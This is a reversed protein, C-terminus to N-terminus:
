SKGTGAKWFVRVKGEGQSRGFADARTEGKGGCSGRVVLRSSVRTVGHRRSVGEVECLFRQMALRGMEGLDTRVSTLPVRFLDTNALCDGYGVLAVDAPIRLGLFEAARITSAATYDTEALVASPRDPRRLLETLTELERPRVYGEPVELGHATMAARFGKLRDVVHAVAPKDWGVYAIRRHGLAILHETATRMGAKDDGVIAPCAVDPLYSDVFVLPIGQAVLRRYNERNATVHRPVLILGDVRRELLVEIEHAEDEIGREVQSILLHYGHRKAEREIGFAIRPFYEGEMIPVILAVTQSRGSRIAKVLRNPRYNHKRALAEVRAALRASIRKQRWRGNLIDSVTPQSIGALAALDTMSISM